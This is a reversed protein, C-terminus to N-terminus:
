HNTGNVDAGAGLLLKVMEIRNTEIAVHLPQPRGGWFPHPGIANVLAPSDRLMAAVEDLKGEGVRLLFEDVLAEPLPKPVAARAKTADVHAALARWSEFGYRRAVALQAAALSPHQAREAKARKRLWSLDPREPLIESM